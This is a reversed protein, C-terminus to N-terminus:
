AEVITFLVTGFGRHRMTGIQKICQLVNTVLERDAEQCEIRGEFSIGKNICRAQRLSGTKVSGAEDLATFTRLHSMSSLVTDPDSGIENIVIQQISAPIVLDSFILKNADNRDEGGTGLLRTCTMDIDEKSYGQWFLYQQLKDRFLGKLTNGGLYPFGHADRTVSIDEAGPISLGNGLITDSLLEMNIKM